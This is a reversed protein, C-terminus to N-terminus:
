MGKIEPETQNIFEPHKPFKLFFQPLIIASKTSITLYALTERLSAFLALFFSINNQTKGEKRRLMFDELGSADRAFVRIVCLFFFDKQTKDEKRRLTFDGQGPLTERLSAFLAFFFSIDKQTKDETRRPTFNEQGKLTERLSVPQIKM